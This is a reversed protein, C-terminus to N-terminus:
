FIVERLHMPLDIEILEKVSVTAMGSSQELEKVKRILIRILAGNSDLEFIDDKDLVIIKKGTKAHFLLQCLRADRVGLIRRGDRKPFGAAGEITFFIGLGVTDCLELNMISCLRSFQASSVPSGIAKAEVVIGRYGQNRIYIRDCIIDWDSGDGSICFDLQHSASRYSKIESYGILGKFTVALIQELLYGAKQKDLRTSNKMKLFSKLQDLYNTLGPDPTYLWNIIDECDSDYHLYKLAEIIQKHAELPNM